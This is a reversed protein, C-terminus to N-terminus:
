EVAIKSYGAIAVFGGNVGTVSGIAALCSSKKKTYRRTRGASSKGKALIALYMQRGLLLGVVNPSNKQDFSMKPVILGDQIVFIRSLELHVCDRHRFTRSGFEVNLRGM